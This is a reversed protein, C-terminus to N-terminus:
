SENPIEAYCTCKGDKLKDVFPCGLPEDDVFMAGTNCTNCLSNM